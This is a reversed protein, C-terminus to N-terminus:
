KFLLNGDGFHSKYLELDDSYIEKVLEIEEISYMSKYKPIHGDDKMMKIKFEKMKSFSGDIGEISPIRSLDHKLSERTDYVNFGKAELKTIAKSFSELSFYDDYDEYHLFDSQNRWHQDRRSRDQSKIYLLFEHFNINVKEGTSGKFNFKGDVVKDLFCSAVRTFPCRLIVFSYRATVIEKQTAVFTQPNQHIWEIDNLDQIFGNAIAISFRLSSCANKPIFTCIGDISYISLTHNLSFNYLENNAVKSTQLRANKLLRTKLM